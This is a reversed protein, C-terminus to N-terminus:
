SHTTVQTPHDMDTKQIWIHYTYTYIYVYQIYIYVYQIYMYIYTYVYISCINPIYGPDSEWKKGMILLYFVDGSSNTLSDKEYATGLNQV